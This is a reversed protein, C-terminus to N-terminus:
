IQHKLEKFGRANTMGKMRDFVWGEYGRGLLKQAVVNISHGEFTMLYIIADQDLIESQLLWCAIIFFAVQGRLSLVITM